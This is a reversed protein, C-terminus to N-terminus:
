TNQALYPTPSFFVHNGIVRQYGRWHLNLTRVHFSLADGIPNPIRHQLAARAIRVCREWTPGDLKAVAGTCTWSFQCTRKGKYLSTQRVVGCATGPYKPNKMRNMVLYAVAAKGTDSEGRSELFVAKSVCHVEQANLTASDPQELALDDLPIPPLDAVRHQGLPRRRHVQRHVVAKHRSPAHHVASRHKTHHVTTQAFVPSAAVVLVFTVLSFIFRRM